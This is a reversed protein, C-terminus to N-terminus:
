RAQHPGFRRSVFVTVKFVSSVIGFAAGAFPFAFDAAIRDFMGAGVFWIGGHAEFAGADLGAM